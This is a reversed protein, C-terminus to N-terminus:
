EAMAQSGPVDGTLDQTPMARFSGGSGKQPRPTKPAAMLAAWDPLRQFQKFEFNLEKRIAKTNM